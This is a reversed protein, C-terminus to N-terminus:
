KNFLTTNILINNRELVICILIYHKLIFYNKNAIDRIYFFLFNSTLVIVPFYIHLKPLALIVYLFSAM